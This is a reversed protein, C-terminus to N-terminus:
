ISSQLSPTLFWLIKKKVPKKFIRELAMAYAELQPRYRASREQTQEEGRVNDTKYDILTIGDDDVICCDVVGQLLVTDDSDALGLDRAKVLLSFRFERRLRDGASLIERGLSSSFLKEVSSINVAGAERESLREETKMEEVQTLIEERSSVRSFDAHQLFLHTAIGREVPALPKEALTFDPMRFSVRHAPASEEGASAPDDRLLPQAEADPEERGKLGTATIKSPLNVAEPHPYSYSLNHQLQLKYEDKEGCSVLVADEETEEGGDETEPAEENRAIRLEMTRGRDLAYAYLLWTLTNSASFMQEPTPKKGELLTEAKSLAEEPNTHLGTMYLLKEARTLAVYALRLQESREERNTKAKVALRAITPYTLHAKVDAYRSGIGLDKDYLLNGERGGNSDFRDATGSYFVVPWQLGKSKHVTTLTVGAGDSVASAPARGAEKLEEVHQLFSHLGRFIGNEFGEALTLLQMLGTTLASGDKASAFVAALNKKALILRITESVTLDAARARMRDLEALFSATKEDTEAYLTMATYFDSNKDACRIGALEDPTFGFVPNSLVRVLDTDRRPNDLVALMSLMLSVPPLNYYDEGTGASVPINWRAFARRYIKENNKLKRLLVAFDSYPIGESTHLTYIEQAVVLAEREADKLEKLEPNEKKEKKGPVEVLLLVPKAGGEHEKKGCKLQQDPKSYDVDGLNETMCPTFVSNCAALVSSMSRYNFQLPVKEPEGEKLPQGFSGYKEMKTHFIFPDAQRFRYISQKIDGVFFLNQKERSVAAFLADQIRSVDQYEDVMIETYRRSVSLATETPGKGDLLIRATYHELDGYDVAGDRLKLRSYEETFERILRLLVKLAPATERIERLAEGSSRNFDKALVECTKLATNRINKLRDRLEKEEAPIRKTGLGPAPISGLANYLGDWTKANLARKMGELSAKFSDYYNLKLNGDANELEAVASEMAETLYNLRWRCNDALYKGWPTDLADAYERSLDAETKDLWQEPAEEAQLNKYLTVTLEELKLDDRGRGETDALQIFGPIDAANEYARDLVRKAALSKLTNGREEDLIKFDPSLRLGDPLSLLTCYERLIDGCFAHITGIHARPVMASQRRLNKMCPSGAPTGLAREEAIKEAIADSIKTKLESAAARTFTIVLFTDIDAPATLYVGDPTHQPHIYSMLRRVLVWTKGSGAGASVLLSRGRSNIIERQQPTLTDSM